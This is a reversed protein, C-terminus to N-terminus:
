KVPLKVTAKFLDGDIDITLKGGQLETLSRAIALGLGSGESNRSEDGRKFREMLEEAPINLPFASINKIVIGSFGDEKFVSVYVRSSPMAYKFVNTLLNDVVRWLLKGDAKIMIKEGPFSTIFDLGSAEVKDGLEGFGQKILSVLDLQEMNVTINGSSAKAAEFLDETLNKLRLSKIDLIELYKPANESDLGEKKLLDVYTIISTLPTKLDHSVNTILEAKMREAKLENEVSAGLGQAINNIDDSLETMVLNPGEPIRWALQGGKIKKVGEAIVKFYSIRKIIYMLMLLNVGGYILLAFLVAAGRSWRLSYYFMYLAVATVFNYAIFFATIYFATQGSLALKGYQDASGKIFRKIYRLVAYVLTNKLVTRRKLHKIFISSYLLSLVVGAIVAPSAVLMFTMTDTVMIRSPVFGVFIILGIVPLLLIFAGVDLYLGDVFTLHIDISNKRRGASILFLIYGLISVIMGLIAIYLCELGHNRNSEYIKKGEAYDSESVGVYITIGALSNDSRGYFQGDYGYYSGNQSKIHYPLSKFFNELDNKNVTNDAIKGDIASIISFYLKSASLNLIIDNYRSLDENIIDNNIQAIKKDYNENEKSILDDREKILRTQDSDNNAKAQEIFSDYQSKIVEVANFKEQLINNKQNRLRDETVTKGSKIYDESRLIALEALSYYIKDIKNKLETSENYDRPERVFRIDNFGTISYLVLLMGAICIVGTILKFWITSSINRLKTDM